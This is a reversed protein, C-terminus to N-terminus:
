GRAVPRTAWMKLSDGLRILSLCRNIGTKLRRRWPSSSMTENLKFGADNRSPGPGSKRPRMRRVIESPNLGETYIRVPKLGNRAMTKCLGRATWIVLHEPPSFVSWDAGLIRRNLSEANPTTLYFIGGPRLLHAVTGLLYDPAPVHELIEVMTIVDFGQAQFSRDASPDATVVWGQRQGYALARPSIESGFCSWGCRQAITLLGGEGYGIDLWRGTQRYKALSGVLRDLSAAVVAPMKFQAHDYYHDYLEKVVGSNAQDTTFIVGCTTCRSLRFGNKSDWFHYCTGLCAPCPQAQAVQAFQPLSGARVRNISVLSTM